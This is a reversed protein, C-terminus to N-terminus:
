MGMTQSSGMAMSAQARMPATCETTNAPNEDSERAARMSLAFDLTVACQKHPLRATTAIQRPFGYAGEETSAKRCVTQSHAASAGLPLCVAIQMLSIYGMDNAPYKDSEKSFALDLNPDRWKQRVHVRYLGLQMNVHLGIEQTKAKSGLM